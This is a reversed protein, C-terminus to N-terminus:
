GIWRGALKWYGDFLCALLATLRRELSSRLLGPALPLGGGELLARDDVRRLRRMRRRREVIAGIHRLQSLWARIWLLAWGRRLAIVLTALEYLLLAPFLVVLTRLRYHILITLLRNRMTLYARRSPYSGADRFALGPTGGAREHFVDARPECLIRHGMARIRLAFELDEFYFFFLQDFGGAALAEGRDLLYCASICAGVFARQRDLTAVPQFGNRLRLTGLFYVGAGDTQVVDREPVLRVRPCVITPREAQYAEVMLAVTERGVYIDHDVLLVLPSDVSHLGANRAACPGLNGGMDVVRVAPFTGRIRAASGDTSANDIVVLQGLPYSQELLARLVRLVREGGNHNIVVASVAVPATAGRETDEATRGPGDGIVLGPM